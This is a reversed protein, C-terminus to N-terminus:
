PAEAGDHRLEHLEALSADTWEGGQIARLEVLVSSLPEDSLVDFRDIVFSDLKWNGRRDRTWRGTGFLRVPEFLRRALDKAIPRKAFCYSLILGESQLAVPVVPGKGGVRIVEGDLTGQQRVSIFGEGKEERGPFRIIEAGTPEQVVGIANDERLKRNIKRYARLAESPGTGWTVQRVRERVKPVAEREVKIVPVTSGGDVRLFHVAKVEGFLAALEALYEALRAMPMTEPTYADIRFRFEEGTAM